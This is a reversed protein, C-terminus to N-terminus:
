AISTRRHRARDEPLAEFTQRSLQRASRQKIEM